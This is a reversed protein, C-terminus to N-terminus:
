ADESTHVRGLGGAQLTVNITTTFSISLALAIALTIRTLESRTPGSACTTQVM